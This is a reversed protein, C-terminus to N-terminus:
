RLNLTIFSNNCDLKKAFEVCGKDTISNYSLDLNQVPFFSNIMPECFNKIGKDQINNNSISLTRLTSNNM